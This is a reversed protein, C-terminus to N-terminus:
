IIYVSSVTSEHICNTVDDFVYIPPVGACPDQVVHEARLWGYRGSYKALIWDSTSSDGPCTVVSHSDNVYSFKECSSLNAILAGNCRDQLLALPGADKGVYRDLLVDTRSLITIGSCTLDEDM